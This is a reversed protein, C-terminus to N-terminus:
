KSSSIHVRMTCRPSPTRRRGACALSSPPTSTSRASANRAEWGPDAPSSRRRKVRFSAVTRGSGPASNGGPNVNDNVFVQWTGSGSQVKQWVAMECTVTRGRFVALQVEPVIWEYVENGSLKGKEKVVSVGKRLLLPRITGPYANESFDDPSFTLTPSKTWGDMGTTGGTGADGPAIPTLTLSTSQPPSVGGFNSKITISNPTVEIVRSATVYGNTCQVKEPGQPFPPQVLTNDACVIYNAGAYGWFSVISPLFADGRALLAYLTTLARMLRVMAALLISIGSKRLIAGGGTFNKWPKSGADLAKV